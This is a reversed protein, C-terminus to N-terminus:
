PSPPPDTAEADVIRALLDKEFYLTVRRRETPKGSVKNEYVYDWRNPHFPDQIAATGLLFRVQKRDMGVRLRTRADDDIVNGQQIPIRHVWGSCGTAATILVVLVTSALAKRM